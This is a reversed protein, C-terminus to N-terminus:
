FHVSLTHNSNITYCDHSLVNNINHKHTQKNRTTITLDWGGLGADRHRHLPGLQAPHQRQGPVVLQPALTEVVPADPVAGGALDVVAAAVEAVIGVKMLFLYPNYCSSTCHNHNTM